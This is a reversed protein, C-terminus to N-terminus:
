FMTDIGVNYATFNRSPDLCQAVVQSTAPEIGLSTIAIQWQNLAELQVRARTDVWGRVSIVVLFIKQDTFRGIGLASLSVMKM